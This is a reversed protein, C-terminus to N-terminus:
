MKVVKKMGTEDRFIVRLVYTGSRLHGVPLTHFNVGAPASPTQIDELLNGYLDMLTIRLPGESPLIFPVTVESFAPNPRPELVRFADNFTLCRQDSALVESSEILSQHNVIESKLNLFPQPDVGGESPTPPLDTGNLTGPEFNLTLLETNPTQPSGPVTATVCLFEHDNINSVPFRASFVYTIIDGGRLIGTWTERIPDRGDLHLDLWLTDLERTGLNLLNAQVEMFGGQLRYDVRTVAIDV